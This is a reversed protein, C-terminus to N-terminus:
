EGLEALEREKAALLERMMERERELMARKEAKSKDAETRL